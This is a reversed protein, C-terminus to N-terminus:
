PFRVTTKHQDLGGDDDKVTLGISYTKPQISARYTHECTFHRSGKGQLTCDTAGPSSPDGWTAIVKHTDLTGPDVFDGEVVVLPGAKKTVTISSDLFRPTVNAVRIQVDEFDGSTGGGGTNDNTGHPAQRDLVSVNIVHQTTEINDGYVHSVEFSTVGPQLPVQQTPSGDNWRIRVSHYDTTDPDAFAGTLTVTQGEETVPPSAHLSTIQPPTNATALVTASSAALLM